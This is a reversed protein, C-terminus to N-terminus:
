DEYHQVLYDYLAEPTSFDVDGTTDTVTGPKYERGFDLEYVFYSIDCGKDRMLKELLKVVLMEHSIQLSAGNCFDCEINERSCAFIEDVKRVIDNAEKLRNIADVFEDKSIMIKDM